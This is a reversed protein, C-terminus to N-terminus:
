RAQGDQRRFRRSQLELAGVKDDLAGVKVDLASMKVGMSSLEKEQRDMKADFKNGLEKLESRVAFGSLFFTALGVSPVISQLEFAQFGSIAQPLDGLVMGPMVKM